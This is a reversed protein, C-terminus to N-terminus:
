RGDLRDLHGCGRCGADRWGATEVLEVPPARDRRGRRRCRGRWRGDLRDLHGCGRCGAWWRGDLRDLHGCGRCTGGKPPRSLSSRRPGARRRASVPAWAAATEVLEVLPAEVEAGAADAGVGAWRGDLGDLHGCCRCRGWGGGMLRRPIGAADPVRTRWGAATEVLEVLPARRRRRRSPPRTPWGFGVPEVGQDGLGLDFTVQGDLTADAADPFALVVPSSTGAPVAGPARTAVGKIIQDQEIYVGPRPQVSVDGASVTVLVFLTGSQPSLYAHEPQVSYLGQSEVPDQHSLDVLSDDLAVDDVTFDTLKGDEGELDAWTVCEEPAGAGGCAEFGGDVEDPETPAVPQGGAIASAAYEGLYTLYEAAPSGDQAVDAAASLQDPDYSAVAGFYTALEAQAPLDPGGGGSGGSGGSGDPGGSGGSDDSSCGGAALVLVAVAAAGSRRLTSM